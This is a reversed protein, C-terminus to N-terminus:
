HQFLLMFAFPCPPAVCICCLSSMVCCLYLVFVVCIRCSVVCIPCFTFNQIDLIHEWSYARLRNLWRNLCCGRRCIWFHRFNCKRVCCGDKCMWFQRCSSPCVPQRVSPRISPRAPLHVSLCASPCASPRASLRVPLRASPCVPSNQRQALIKQFSKPVKTNM